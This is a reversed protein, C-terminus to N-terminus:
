QKILTAVCIHPWNVELVNLIATLIETTSSLKLRSPKSGTSPPKSDFDPLPMLNFGKGIWTGALDTLPGLSGAVGALSLGPRTNLAPIPPSPAQVV